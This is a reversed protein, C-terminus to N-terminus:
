RGLDVQMGGPYKIKYGYDLTKKGGPPLEIEWKALHEDKDQKGTLTEVLEIQKNEIRPLPDEVRLNVPINKNNTIAVQWQWAQSRDSGFLGAEDAERTPTVKIAIQPDNGFSLDLKNELLSFPRKGVFVGEVLVTAQGSPMPLLEDFEIKALLFAQPSQLPRALYDFEAPWSGMRINLQYNKGAKVSQRGLDYIDFLTGSRRAPPEEADAFSDQIMEMQPAAAGVSKGLAISQTAPYTRVERIIWPQNEPPTLTFVPEATALLLQVDQWDAGTQQRLNATWDWRVSREAPRADLIYVPAWTAGRVRYSYRLTESPKAGALTVTVAWTRKQRNTAEALKRELERLEKEIERSEKTLTSHELKLKESNALVLEALKQYEAASQFEGGLPAQWLSLARERAELRDKVGQLKERTAEVQKQLQQYDGPPELVSEFQLGSVTASSQQAAIKLSNPDAVAPLTLTATGDTVAVSAQETVIAGSPFVLVEVPKALLAAPTALLLTLAVLILRNM